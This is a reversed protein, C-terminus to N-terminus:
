GLRERVGLIGQPRVLLIMILAVLAVLFKLDNDLWFTSVESAFGISLGGLMAGYATGLGGLTVAAFILLLVREGMQWEVVQTLGLLIGGLAALAAGMIWVAVITRDVNIGSSRALPPNDSVARMATGLKTRQLTLGVGLLVLFATIIIFYDKPPLSIPGIDYNTQIRYADYTRQRSGFYILILYRMVFALGISVVMLSINNMKRRRLPSFLGVELLFGLTGGVLVAAPIVVLFPLGTWSEIGWATVAGFAVLESHAFNVLGTVGFILSLGVAALAILLGVKLGSVCRNLLRQWTPDIAVISTGGAELGFAANTPRALQDVTVTVEAAADGRLGAGEPLSDVDLLVQYDGLETIPTSWKGDDGSTLEAIVEGDPGLVTIGAGVVVDRGARLTGRLEGAPEAETDTQAAAVGALPAFLTAVIIALLAWAGTTGKSM